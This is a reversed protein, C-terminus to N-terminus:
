PSCTRPVSWRLSPQPARELSGLQQPQFAYAASALVVAATTDPRVKLQLLKQWTSHPSAFGKQMNDLFGFLKLMPPGAVAAEANDKAGIEALCNSIRELLSRAKATSLM